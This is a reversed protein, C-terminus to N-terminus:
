RMEADIIIGAVRNEGALVRQLQERADLPAHLRHVGAIPIQDFAGDLVQSALFRRDAIGLTKAVSDDAAAQVVIVGDEALQFGYTKVAPDADFVPFVADALQLGTY